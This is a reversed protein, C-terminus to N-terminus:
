TSDLSSSVFHWCFLLGSTSLQKSYHKSGLNSRTQNYYLKPKTIPPDFPCPQAKGRLNTSPDMCAPLLRCRLCPPLRVAQLTAREMISQFRTPRPIYCYTTDYRRPVWPPPLMPPPLM